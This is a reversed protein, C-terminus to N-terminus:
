ALVIASAAKPFPFFSCLFVTHITRSAFSFAESCSLTFSRSFGKNALGNQALGNTAWILTQTPPWVWFFHTGLLTTRRTPAWFKASKEREWGMKARKTERQPDERPIKTTNSVSPGDFTRTQLERTTKHLGPPGSVAPAECSLGLAWVRVNSPGPSRFCWRFEVFFVGLSLSLCFLAFFPAPSPFCLAFNQPRANPPSFTCFLVCLVCLVCCVVFLEFVRFFLSCCFELCNVVFIWNIEFVFFM